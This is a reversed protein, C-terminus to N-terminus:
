GRREGPRRREKAPRQASPGTGRDDTRRLNDRRDAHHQYRCQCQDQKDCGPLPLRPAALPLHRKGRLALASECAGTAAIISVAHWATKRPAKAM